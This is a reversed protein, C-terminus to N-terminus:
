LRPSDIEVAVHKGPGPPWPYTISLIPITIALTLTVKERSLALDVLICQLFSLVFNVRPGGHFLRKRIKRRQGEV